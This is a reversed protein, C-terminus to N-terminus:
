IAQALTFTHDMGGLRPMSAGNFLVSPVGDIVLVQPRERRGLIEHSGDDWELSSDYADGAFHWNLGDRSFAHGGKTNRFWHSLIHFNGRADRFLGPDETLNPYTPVHGIRKFPADWSPATAIGVHSRDCWQQPTHNKYSLGCPGGRYALLCTGNPFVYLSPNTVFSDWQDFGAPEIVVGPRSKWPGTIKDSYLMTIAGAGPPDAAGIRIRANSTTGPPPPPYPPWHGLLLASCNTTPDSGPKTCGISTIVYPGGNPIKNVVPNENFAPAVVEVKKYPGVPHQSVARSLQGGGGWCGLGGKCMLDMFILHYKGDDGRVAQGGWSATSQNAVGPITSIGFDSGRNYGHASKKAPLLNLQACHPGRWAADCKCRNNVCEGGLSCDEESKCGPNPPPPCPPCPKHPMPQDCQGPTPDSMCFTRTSHDACPQPTTTCPQGSTASGGLLLLLFLLRRLRWMCFRQQWCRVASCASRHAHMSIM